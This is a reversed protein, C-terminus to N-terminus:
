QRQPGCPSPDQAWCNRTMLSSEILGALVSLRYGIVWICSPFMKSAWLSQSGTQLFRCDDLFDWHSGSHCPTQRLHNLVLLLWWHPRISSLESSHSDDLVQYTASEYSCFFIDFYFFLICDCCEMWYLDLGSFRFTPSCPFQAGSIESIVALSFFSVVGPVTFSILDSILVWTFAYIIFVIFYITLIDLSHMSLFSSSCLFTICVIFSCYLFCNSYM